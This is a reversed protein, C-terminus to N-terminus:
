ENARRRGDRILQPTRKNHEFRVLTCLRFALRARWGTLM